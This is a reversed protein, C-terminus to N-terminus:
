KCTCHPDAVPVHCCPAQQYEDDVMVLVQQMRAHSYDKLESMIPHINFHCIFATMIVPVAALAQAAAQLHSRGPAALDPFWNLHPVQGQWVAALALAVTVGCFLLACALSCALTALSHM